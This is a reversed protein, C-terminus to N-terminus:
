NAGCLNQLLIKANISDSGKQVSLFQVIVAFVYMATFCVFSFFVGLCVQIRGLPPYRAVALDVLCQKSLNPHTCQDLVSSLGLVLVSMFIIVQSLNNFLTFIFISSLLQLHFFELPTKSPNRSLRHIKM